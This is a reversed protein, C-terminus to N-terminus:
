PILGEIDEDPKGTDCLPTTESSEAPASQSEFVKQIAALLELTTLNKELFITAGQRLAEARTEPDGFATLVIIPLDPSILRISHLLMGGNVVPMRLDTIVLDVKEPRSLIDIADLAWQTATVVAGESRLTKGLARLFREDDDVILIKGNLTGQM